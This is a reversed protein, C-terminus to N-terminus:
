LSSRRTGEKKRGFNKLGLGCRVSREEEANWVPHAGVVAGIAAAADRVGAAARLM